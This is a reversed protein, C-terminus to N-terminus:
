GPSFNKELFHIIDKSELMPQGDIVLCPVQRIENLKILEEKYLPNELIDRYEVQPVHLRQIAQRVIKCYPCAEFHYLILKM